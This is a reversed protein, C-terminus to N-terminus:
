APGGDDAYGRDYGSFRRQYYYEEEEEEYREWELRNWVNEMYDNYDDENDFEIRDDPDTWVKKV